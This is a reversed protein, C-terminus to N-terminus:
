VLPEGTKECYIRRTKAFIALFKRPGITQIQNCAADFEDALKILETDGDAVARLNKALNSEIM